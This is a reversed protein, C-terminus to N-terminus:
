TIVLDDFTKKVTGDGKIEILAELVQSAKTKLERITDPQFVAEM